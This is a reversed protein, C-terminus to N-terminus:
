TSCSACATARAAWCTARAPATPASCWPAPAAATCAMKEEIAQVFVDNREGINGEADFHFKPVVFISIGKTGAPAGPARALVLHVINDTFDNDGGTIFIKEGEILYAGEEGEVPTAKARNDGVSSGAGAETLCMTGGWEGAYLKTCLLERLSEPAYHSLLNAAAKALGPYTTFSMNAGTFLESVALDMVHPLGMGGYEPSASLAIWGGDRVAEFAEKYGPPTTINGQDDLKCGHVDGAKNCAALKEVSIKHAEDLISRYMDEDFDAYKDHESMYTDADLQEFLVFQMDRLDATYETSSM